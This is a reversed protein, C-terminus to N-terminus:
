LRAGRCRREAETEQPPYRSGLLFRSQRRAERWTGPIRQGLIATAPLLCLAKFRDSRGIPWEVAGPMMKRLLM